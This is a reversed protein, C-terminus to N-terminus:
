WIEEVTETAQILTCEEKSPEKEDIYVQLIGNEDLGLQLRLSGNPQQPRFIDIKAIVPLQTQQQRFQNEKWPNKRLTLHLEGYDNLHLESVTCGRQGYPHNFELLPIFELTGIIDMVKTYGIREWSSRVNKVFTQARNLELLALRAAGMSVCLKPDFKEEEPIMVKYKDFYQRIKLRVYPIRCIQGAMLLTHVQNKGIEALALAEDLTSIAKEVQSHILEEFQKREVFQTYNNDSWEYNQMILKGLNIEVKQLDSLKKKAEEARNRFNERMDIFLNYAFSDHSYQTDFEKRNLVISKAEFQVSKEKIKRAIDKALEADMDIGGLHSNGRRSIIEIKDRNIRLISIDLTGGGFDFVALNTNQNEIIEPHNSIYHMAAATPEDLVVAEEVFRRAALEIIKRQSDSFDVPVTLAIRRIRRCLNKEAATILDRIIFSVLEEPEFERGQFKVKGTLLNRKISRVAHQPNSAALKAAQWGTLYDDASNFYVISPVMEHHESCIPEVRANVDDVKALCSNSTGFDIAVLGLYDAMEQLHFNVSLNLNIKEQFLFLIKKTIQQNKGEMHKADIILTFAIEHDPLIEKQDSQPFLRFGQSNCSDSIFVGELYLTEKGTNKILLVERRRESPSITGLNLEEIELDKSEFQRILIKPKTAVIKEILIPINLDVPPCDASISSLHIQKDPNQSQLDIHVPIEKQSYPPMQVPFPTWRGSPTVTSDDVLPQIKIEELLSPLFTLWIPTEKLNLEAPTGGNNHLYLTAPEELQSVTLRQGKRHIVEGTIVPASPKYFIISERLLDSDTHIPIEFFSEPMEKVLCYQFALCVKDGPSLHDELPLGKFKLYPSAAPVQLSIRLNGQGSNFLWLEAKRYEFDKEIQIRHSGNLVSLHRIDQGCFACFKDDPRIHWRSCFRCHAM